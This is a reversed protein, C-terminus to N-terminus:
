SNASHDAFCYKSHGTFNPVMKIKISLKSLYNVTLVFYIRELVYGTKWALSNGCTLKLCIFYKFQQWTDNCSVYLLNFDANLKVNISIPRSNPPIISGYKMNLMLHSVTNLPVPCYIFLISYLFISLLEAFKGKNQKRQSLHHETNTDVALQLESLYM